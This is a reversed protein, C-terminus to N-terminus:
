EKIAKRKELKTFKLFFEMPCFGTTGSLFLMLGVFITFYLFGEAVVLGLIISLVVFAGAIVRIISGKGNILYM